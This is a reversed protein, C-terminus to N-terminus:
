RILLANSNLQLFSDENPEQSAPRYKFKMEQVKVGYSCILLRKRGLKKFFIVRAPFLITCICHQSFLNQLVRQKRGRLTDMKPGLTAEVTSQIDFLLRARWWPEAAWSSCRRHHQLPRRPEKDRACRPAM